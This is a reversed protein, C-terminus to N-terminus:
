ARRPHAQGERGRAAIDVGRAVREGRARRRPEVREAGAQAAVQVDAHRKPSEAQFAVGTEAGVGFGARGRDAAGLVAARPQVAPTQEADEREAELLAPMGDTAVRVIALALLADDEASHLAPEHALVSQRLDRLQRPDPEAVEETAP